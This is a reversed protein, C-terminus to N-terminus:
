ALGAPLAQDVSRGSRAARLAALGLQIVDDLTVRGDTDRRLENKIEHLDLLTERSVPVSTDAM